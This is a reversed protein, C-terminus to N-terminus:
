IQKLAEARRRFIVVSFHISSVKKGPLFEYNLGFNNSSNGDDRLLVEENGNVFM